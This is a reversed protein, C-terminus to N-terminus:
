SRQWWQPNDEEAAKLTIGQYGVSITQCGQVVHLATVVQNASGYAFGSAARDPAAGGCQSATVRLVAPATERLVAASPGDDALAAGGIAAAVVAALLHATLRM